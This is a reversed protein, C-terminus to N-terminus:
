QENELDSIQKRLATRADLVDKLAVANKVLVALLDTVSKCSLVGELGELVANDTSSLKAKLEAVQVQVKEKIEEAILDEDEVFERDLFRFNTINGEPLNEVLPMQETAYEPFTVSLVRNDKDLNLAYM